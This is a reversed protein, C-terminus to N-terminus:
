FVIRTDFGFKFRFIQNMVPPHKRFVLELLHKASYLSFDKTFLVTRDTGINCIFLELDEVIIVISEQFFRIGEFRFCFETSFCFLTRFFLLFVNVRQGTRFALSGSFFDLTLTFLFLSLLLCFFCLAFANNVFGDLLTQIFGLTNLGCLIVLLEHVGVILLFIVFRFLIVSFQIRLSYLELGDSYPRAIIRNLIIDIDKVTFFTDVGIFYFRIHFCIRICLQKLVASIGIDM